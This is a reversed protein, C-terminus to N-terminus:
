DGDVSRWCYWCAITAYPRWPQAIEESKSKDPLEGLGYLDRLATRIGLDEHPLVDLRGLSFMLFMKATWCGIGKVQVLHEIARDDDLRGIRRLNLRGETVAACLDTIYSAKQPSLGASRLSKVSVRALSEATIRGNAPLKGVRRRISRAASTSIQQSIISDVLTGFRNRQLRLTCPGFQDILERIVPDATRLHRIAPKIATPSTSM